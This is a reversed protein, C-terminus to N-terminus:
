WFFPFLSFILLTIPIIVREAASRMGSVMSLETGRQLKVSMGVDANGRIVLLSSQETTDLSGEFEGEKKTEARGLCYVPDGLSLTNLTWTTQKHEIHYWTHYPIGYDINKWTSPDVTIGASGDHLIFPISGKGSNTKFWLGDREGEEKTWEYAVIGQAHREKGDINVSMSGDPGPRVQGVLEVPGVATSRVLQTPTDLINHNVKWTRLSLVVWILNFGLIGWRLINGATENIQTGPRALLDSSLWITTTICVMAAISYFTFVAPIPTGIVTPHEDIVKGDKDETYPNELNWLRYSPEDIIWDSEDRTLSDYYEARHPLTAVTLTGSSSVHRQGDRAQKKKAKLVGGELSTPTVLIMFASGVILCMSALRQLDERDYARNDPPVDPIGSAKVMLGLGVLMLIIAGSWVIRGWITFPITFKFWGHQLDNANFDEAVNHEPRRSRKDKGCDMYQLQLSKAKV